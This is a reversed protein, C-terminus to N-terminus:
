QNQGGTQQQGGTVQSNASTSGSENAIPKPARPLKSVDRYREVAGAMRGGDGPIRTNGVNRPWPDIVHTASNVAAANGAGHTVTDKRQFYQEFPDDWPLALCCIVAAQGALIRALSSIKLM